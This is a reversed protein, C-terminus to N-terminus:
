FQVEFPEVSFGEGRCGPPEPEDKTLARPFAIKAAEVSSFVGLVEDFEWPVWRTVVWVTM